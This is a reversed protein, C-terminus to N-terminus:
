EISLTIKSLAVDYVITIPNGENKLTYKSGKWESVISYKSKLYEAVDEETLNELLSSLEM